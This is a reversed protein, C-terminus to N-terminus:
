VEQLPPRTASPARRSLTYVSVYRPNSDRERRWIKSSYSKERRKDLKSSITSVIQPLEDIWAKGNEAYISILNSKFTNM